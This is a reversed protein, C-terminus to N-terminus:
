IHRRFQQPLAVMPLGPIEPVQGGDYDTSKKHPSKSFGLGVNLKFYRSWVTDKSKSLYNYVTGYAIGLQKSIKNM